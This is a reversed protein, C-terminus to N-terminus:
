GGIWRSCSIRSRNRPGCTKTRRPRARPTTTLIGGELIKWHGNDGEPVKWGDFNKGNFLATFGKPPDDAGVWSGISLVLAAAILLASRKHLM